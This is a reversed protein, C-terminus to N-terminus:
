DEKRAALMADAVRYAEHARHGPTQQYDERPNAYMAALVKIACYDRLTMGPSSVYDALQKAHPFAPGGDAINTAM